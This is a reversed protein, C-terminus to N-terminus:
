LKGGKAIKLFEKIKGVDEVGETEIGGAVDVAYPKVLNIMELVNNQNLGGALFLPYQASVIAAREMDVVDGEGQEERDILFYDVPYQKMTKITENSFVKIIKCRIESCFEPSENGHLQVFDLGLFNVLDNIYNIEQNQFVGVTKVKGKLTEIIKKADLPKVFRRSSEVFNFGLFDAGALVAAKASELSRIGCIKIKVKM